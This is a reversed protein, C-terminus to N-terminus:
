GYLMSSTLRRFATAATHFTQWRTLRGAVEKRPWRTIRVFGRRAIAIVTSRLAKMSIGCLPLAADTPRHHWRRLSYPAHRRIKQFRQRAVIRVHLFVASFDMAFWAAVRVM